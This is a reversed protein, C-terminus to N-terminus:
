PRFIAAVRCAAVPDIGTATEDSLVVGAYGARLAEYLASVEARTPDPRGSMHELVQGALLAPVTLEQIRSTFAHATEAMGRLGLEAGLDGRCLWLADANEAIRLLDTFASARELKAVLRAKAPFQARYMGMERGDKVYSVAYVMEPFGTTISVIERDKTDLGERRSESHVLTIGKRPEIWGGQEVRATIEDVQFADIVLKSRADNLIIEGNSHRAAEFFDPHPVPLTERAGSEMEPVLRVSCGQILEFANFRGLRWKSGQLDLFVPLREGLSAFFAELRGLWGLLQDGDLHSTNLRFASAGAELLGRWSEPTASAPGVTAVIQYRM